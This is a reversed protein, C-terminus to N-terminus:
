EPIRNKLERAVVDVATKESLEKAEPEQAQQELGLHECLARLMQLAKTIEKESLLDVQLNLQNRQDARKSMRNQKMLVFTTLLVGEISVAMSLFMFPYPDFARIGPILRLNVIVWATFWGIHILVFTMTGVFSGVADGIREIWTRDELFEQEMKAVTEINREVSPLPHKRV